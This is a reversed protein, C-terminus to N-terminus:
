MHTHFISQLQMYERVLFIARKDCVSKSFVFDENRLVKLSKLADFEWVITVLNESSSFFRAGFVNNM